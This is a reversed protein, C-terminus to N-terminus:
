TVGLLFKRQQTLRHTRTNIDNLESSQYDIYIHDVYVNLFVSIAIHKFSDFVKQTIFIIIIIIYLASTNVM